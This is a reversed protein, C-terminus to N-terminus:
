KNKTGQLVSVGEPFPNGSARRFSVVQGVHWIADEVPGNILNWYPYERKSNPNEFIMPFDNLDAQDGKLIESAEQINLLTKKRMDAFSLKPPNPDSITPHKKVANNLVTTLGLIHELTELTTRAEQSPKYSLDTETLGETAWYYRFGLGDVMRAAVNAATYSTPYPPIEHYYPKGQGYMFLQALMLVLTFIKKM